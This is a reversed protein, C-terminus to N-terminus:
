LEALLEFFTELIQSGKSWQVNVRYRRDATLGFVYPTTIIDGAITASGLTTASTVDVPTADTTDLVTVIPSTGGGGWLTTPVTYAIREHEGQPLPSEIVRRKASAM